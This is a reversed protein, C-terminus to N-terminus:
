FQMRRNRYRRHALDDNHDGVQVQRVAGIPRRGAGGGYRPGGRSDLARATEPLARRELVTPALPERVLEAARIQGAGGWRAGAGRRAAPSTVTATPHRPAPPAARAGRPAGWAARRRRPDTHSRDTADAPPGTGREEPAAPPPAGRRAHGRPPAPRPPPVPTAAQRWRCARGTRPAGRHAS